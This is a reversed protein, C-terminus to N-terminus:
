RVTEFGRNGQEQVLWRLFERKPFRVEKGVILKPPRKAPDSRKIWNYIIDPNCDLFQAVEQVTLVAKKPFLHDAYEILSSDM